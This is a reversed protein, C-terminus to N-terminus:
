NTAAPRAARWEARMQQRAAQREARTISGDKDADATTFRLEAAANFEDRTISGDGNSDAARGMGAGMMGRGHGRHLGGMRHGDPRDGGRMGTHEGRPGHAAAFEDRSIQGNADTDLRAFREAERAPRDAANLVGDKNADLRQWLSDAATRAEARTVTGNADADRLPRAEIPSTVLATVGMAIVAATAALTFQKM